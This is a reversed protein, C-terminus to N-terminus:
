ARYALMRTRRRMGRLPYVASGGHCVARGPLARPASSKMALALNYSRAQRQERQQPVAEAEPPMAKTSHLSPKSRIPQCHPLYEHGARYLADGKSLAALFRAVGTPRDVRMQMARKAMRGVAAIQQIRRLRM